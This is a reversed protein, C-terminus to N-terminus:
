SVGSLSCLAVWPCCDGSHDFRLWVSQQFSLFRFSDLVSNHISNRQVVRM